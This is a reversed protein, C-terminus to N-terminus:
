LRILSKLGLAIGIIDRSWDITYLLVILYIAAGIGAYAVSSRRLSKQLICVYFHM